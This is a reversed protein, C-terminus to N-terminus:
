RSLETKLWDYTVLEIGREALGAKLRPDTLTRLERERGGNYPDPLGGPTTYGPHCVVEAVGEWPEDVTSLFSEVGADERGTFRDRLDVPALRYPNHGAYAAGWRVPVAYQEAVMLYIAMMEPLYHWGYHYDLHSPLRGALAAFEGIQGCIEDRIGILDECTLGPGVTTKFERAFLERRFKGQPGCCASRDAVFPSVLDLHLGVSLGVAQAQAISARAYPSRVLATTETVVGRVHAECIGASVEPSYALDDANVILARM